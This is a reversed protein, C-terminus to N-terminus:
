PPPPPPPQRANYVHGIVIPRDPDGEEFNVVVEWGVRPIATPGPTSLQVVRIWCSSSQDNKGERDWFFQVKIRGYKDAFTQDGTPGVVVATQVGQVTPKPTSRPPRYPVSLPICRFTNSYTVPGNGGPAGAASASHTATTLVYSGNGDFHGDLTFKYGSVLNPSTSTGDVHLAPVTTEQM